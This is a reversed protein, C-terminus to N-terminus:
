YQAEFDIKQFLKKLLEPVYDKEDNISFRIKYSTQLGLLDTSGVDKGFPGMVVPHETKDKGYTISFILIRKGRLKVDEEMKIEIDSDEYYGAELQIKAKAIAEVTRYEDPLKDVTGAERFAHLTSFATIPSELLAKLKDQPIPFDHKLLVKLAAISYAKNPGKRLYNNAVTKAQERNGTNRLLRLYTVPTGIGYYRDERAGDLSDHKHLDYEMYRFLDAMETSDFRIQHTSDQDLAYGLCELVRKRYVQDDLISLLFAKDKMVYSPGKEKEYALFFNYNLRFNKPPLTTFLERGLVFEASDSDTMSQNGLFAMLMRGRLSTPTIEAMYLRKWFDIPPTAVKRNYQDFLFGKVGYFSSDDPYSKMLMEEFFPEIGQEFPYYSLARKGRERSLSDTSRLAQEILALKPTYLDVVAPGEEMDFSKFFVEQLSDYEYGKEQFSTMEFFRGGEIWYQSRRIHNSESSEFLYEWRRQKNVAVTKELRMSENYSTSKVGMKRIFSDEDPIYYYPKFDIVSTQFGFGTEPDTCQYTTKRELGEYGVMYSDVATWYQGLVPIHFNEGKPLEQRFPEAKHPFFQISAFFDRFSTDKASPDISQHVMRMVKNGKIGVRTVNRSGEGVDRRYERWEMGDIFFTDLTGLTGYLYGSYQPLEEEFIEDKDLPFDKIPLTRYSIGYASMTPFDFAMRNSQMDAVPVDSLSYSSSKIHTYDQVQAPMDISYGGLSDTFTQWRSTHSPSDFDASYGTYVAPVVEVTYGKKRLLEHVGQDALLHGAGFTAFLTKGTSIIDDVRDAMGVNRGNIFDEQIIEPGFLEEIFDLDGSAYALIMNEESANLKAMKSMTPGGVLRQYMDLQTRLEELGFIEKDFGMAIGSLYADVFSSPSKEPYTLKLDALHQKWRDIEKRSATNQPLLNKWKKFLDNLQPISSQDNNEYQFYQPSLQDQGGSLDNSGTYLSYFDFDGYLINLFFKSMSDPHIETAFADCSQLAMLVSDHFYFARSDSVHITGFLYSPKELGNGTIKWLLKNQGNLTYPGLLFLIAGLWFLYNHHAKM